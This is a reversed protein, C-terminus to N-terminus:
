MTRATSATDHNYAGLRQLIGWAENYRPGANVTVLFRGTKVEGEYYEAEHEPLGLGVLGGALGGAAAGGAASLLAAALPGVALIPGIVPIVGFTIGLSTLAAAGAGVAAGTAAGTAAKNGEAKVKGDKNKGVLSIEDDKFGVRKLETVARAAEDHSPFVGVVTSRQTKTASM